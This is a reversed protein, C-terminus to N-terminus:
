LLACYKSITNKSMKAKIMTQEHTKHGTLYKNKHTKDHSLSIKKNGYDQQGNTGIGKTLCRKTKM